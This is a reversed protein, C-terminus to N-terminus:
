PFPVGHAAHLPVVVMAILVLGLLLSVALRLVGLILRVVVLGTLGVLAVLLM